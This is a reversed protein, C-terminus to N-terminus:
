DYELHTLLSKVGYPIQSENGDFWHSLLMKICGVELPKYSFEKGTSSTIFAKAQEILPLLIPDNSDDDIRLYGKVEELLQADTM